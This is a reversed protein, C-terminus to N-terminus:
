TPGGDGARWWRLQRRKAGEFHEDPTKWDWFHDIAQAGGFLNRASEIRETVIAQEKDTLGSRPKALDDFFKEIRCATVWREIVELLQTRSAAAAKARVDELEKRRREREAAERRQHEERAKRASEHAQAALQPAVM